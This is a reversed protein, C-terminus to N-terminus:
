LFLMLLMSFFLELFISDSFKLIFSMEFSKKTAVTEKIPIIIVTNIAINKM